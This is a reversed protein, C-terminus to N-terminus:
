PIKVSCLTQLLLTPCSEALIFDAIVNVEGCYQLCTLMEKGKQVIGCCGVGQSHFCLPPSSPFPSSHHPLIQKQAVCVKSREFMKAIGLQYPLVDLSVPEVKSLCVVDSCPVTSIKM